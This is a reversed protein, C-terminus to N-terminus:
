PVTRQGSARAILRVPVSFPIPGPVRLHASVLVASRGVGDLSTTTDTRVVLDRIFGGASREITRRVVASAEAPTRDVEVAARAGEHAASAVVNRAYVAFAVEISGLVLILIVLMGFISELAASGRTSHPGTLLRHRRM